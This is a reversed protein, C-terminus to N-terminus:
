SLNLPLFFHLRFKQETHQSAIVPLWLQPNKKQKKLTPQETDNLINKSAIKKGELSKQRITINMRVRWKHKPETHQLGHPQLSDSM